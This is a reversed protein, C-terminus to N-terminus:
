EDSLRETMFRRLTRFGRQGTVQGRLMTLFDRDLDTTDAHGELWALFAAVVQSEDAHCEHTAHKLLELVGWPVPFDGILENIDHPM